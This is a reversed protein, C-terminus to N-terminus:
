VLYRLAAQKVKRMFEAAQPPPPHTPPHTPATRHLLPQSRQSGGSGAPLVCTLALPPDLPLRAGETEQQM